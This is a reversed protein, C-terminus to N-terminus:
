TCCAYSPGAVTKKNCVGGHTSLHPQYVVTCTLPPLVAKYNRDGSQPHRIAIHNEDYLKTSVKTLQPLTEIKNKDYNEQNNHQNHITQKLEIQSKSLAHLVNPRASSKM